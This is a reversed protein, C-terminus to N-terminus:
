NTNPPAAFTEAFAALSGDDEDVRWNPEGERSKDYNFWVVARIRPHNQTIREFADRIWDCRKSNEGPACGVEALMIPMHPDLREITDLCKGFVADFSEWKHWQDHNPGFNYGDIALWDVYEAGPFYNSMANAPTDPCSQNNAAWVWKVNTAGEEQFLTWARRWATVFAIPDGGWSFWDGNFEFGFRLLVEHDYDRADRAWGRFYDDFDGANIRDLAPRRDHWRWLEMSVIPTAGREHIATAVESPFGRGLDRYFMVYRPSTPFRAIERDLMDGYRSSRWLIQYLGWDPRTKASPETAPSKTPASTTAGRSLIIALCILAILAWRTM